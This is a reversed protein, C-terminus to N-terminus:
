GEAAFVRHFEGEDGVVEVAAAPLSADVVLEDEVEETGADGNGEDGFADGGFEEVGPCGPM